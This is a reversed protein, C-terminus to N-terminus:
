RRVAFNVAVRIPVDDFPPQLVNLTVYWLANEPITALHLTLRSDRQYREVTDATEPDGLVVDLYGQAVQARDARLAADVGQESSGPQIEIRDAYAKRLPDSTPRWSPNRVLVPPFAGAAPRQQDAPL